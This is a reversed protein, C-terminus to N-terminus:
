PGNFMGFAQKYLDRSQGTCANDIKEALSTLIIELVCVHAEYNYFVM